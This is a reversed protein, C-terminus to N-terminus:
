ARGRIVVVCALVILAMLICGFIMILDNMSFEGQLGLLGVNEWDM